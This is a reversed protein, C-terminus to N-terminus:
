PRPQTIDDATLKHDEMFVAIQNHFFQAWEMMPPPQGIFYILFWLWREVGGVTYERWCYEALTVNSEVGKDVGNRILEEYYSMVLDYECVRREAPDMNSIVYQGLDQPGSGLGVMEWDIVRLSGNVHLMVNGPWFDGHVLTWRGEVSLRDMQASWSIGDVAKVVAARVVPDWILDRDTEASKEAATYDKWIRQILSQSAEWSAKGQGHLWAHGRLWHNSARLLSTNEWFTAHVRAIAVFTAKAVSAASPPTTFAASSLASLDRNWNNPNGPGFLTGSDLWDPSLLAEMLICKVGTEMDGHAYYVHPLCSGELSSSSSTRKLLTPALHKYFLAERALGLQQSLGAKHAPIQKLVLKQQRKQDEKQEDPLLTLLLTAGDRPSSGLRGQNSIDQVVCSTIRAKDDDDDDLKPGLWECDLHSDDLWLPMADSSSGSSRGCKAM